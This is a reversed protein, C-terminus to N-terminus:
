LLALSPLHRAQEVLVALPPLHLPAEQAQRVVEVVVM